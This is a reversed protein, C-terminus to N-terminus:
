IIYRYVLMWRIQSQLAWCALIPGMISHQVMCRIRVQTYIMYLKNLVDIYLCTPLGRGRSCQRCDAAEAAITSQVVMMTMGLNHHCMKQHHWSWIWIRSQYYAVIKFLTHLVDACRRITAGSPFNKIRKLSQKSIKEFKAKLIKKLSLFFKWGECGVRYFRSRDCGQDTRRDGFFFGHM